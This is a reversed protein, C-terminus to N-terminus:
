PITHQKIPQPVHFCRIDAYSAMQELTKDRTLIKAQLYIAAQVIHMDGFVHEYQPCDFEFRTGEDKREQKDELLLTAYCLHALKQSKSVHHKSDPILQLQKITTKFADAMVQTEKNPPLDAARGSNIFATGIPVKSLETIRVLMERIIDRITQKEVEIATWTEAKQKAVTEGKGRSAETLKANDFSYHFVEDIKDILICGLNADIGFSFINGLKCRKEHLILDKTNPNERSLAPTIIFAKDPNETCVKKWDSNSDVVYTDRKKIVDLLDEKEFDHPIHKGTFGYMSCSHELLKLIRARDQQSQSALIHEVQRKPMTFFPKFAM